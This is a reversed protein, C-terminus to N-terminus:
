SFASELSLSSQAHTPPRTLMESFADVARSDSFNEKVFTKALETRQPEAAFKSLMALVKDSAEEIAPHQACSLIHGTEGELFCEVAGGAPTSVVPIGMSQAEILVNPLGEFRSLLVKVDMKDYWFGVCKSRGVLLLHDAIGLEAALEVLQTRLRGEGVIVFRTDPRLARLRAAMRVWRLPQKDAELRFVGGVTSTATETRAAFKEWKEVDSPLAEAQCPAVANYLLGIDSVPIDLWKAYELAVTKSNTVFQVNPIQSLGKFLVPYEVRNRDRRINPPLGRFVLQIKDVGAFLAAVAAFLCAGDQWISAVNFSEDRLFPALRTVGYHVPAPLMSFLIKEDEGLEVQRDARQPSMQDIQHVPINAAELDPLFFDNGRISSDHSRVVVEFQNIDEEHPGEEGGSMLRTLKTLQREAGGAALSGTIMAIKNKNTGIAVTRKQFRVLLLELAVLRCDCGRLNRTTLLLRELCGVKRRADECMELAKSGPKLSLAVDDILDVVDKYRGIKALRKAYDIRLRYNSPDRVVLNRFIAFSENHEQIDDLLEARLKLQDLDSRGKVSVQCVQDIIKRAGAVDRNRRLSIVRYRAVTPHDPRQDYLAEWENGTVEGLGAKEMLQLRILRTEFDTSQEAEKGWRDLATKADAVSKAGVLAELLQEAISSNLENTVEPRSNSM